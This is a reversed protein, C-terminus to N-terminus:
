LLFRKVGQKIQEIFHRPVEHFNSDHTRGLKWNIKLLSDPLLPLDTEFLRPYPRHYNLDVAPAENGGGGFAVLVVDALPGVENGVAHDHREVVTKGGLTRVRSRQVVNALAVVPDKGLAFSLQSNFSCVDNNNPIRRAPVKRHTKHQPANVCPNSHGVTHQKRVGTHHLTFTASLRDIFAKVGDRRTDM